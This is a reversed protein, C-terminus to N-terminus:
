GESIALLGENNVSNDNINLEIISYSKKLFESLIWCTKLSLSNEQLNIVKIHKKKMSALLLIKMSHDHYTNFDLDITEIIHNNKIYNIFDDM